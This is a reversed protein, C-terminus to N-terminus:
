KLRSIFSINSRWMMPILVNRSSEISNIISNASYPVNFCTISLLALPSGEKSILLHLTWHHLSIASPIFYRWESVDELWEDLDWLMWCISICPSLFGQPLPLNYSIFRLNTLNTVKSQGKHTFWYRQRCNGVYIGRERDYLLGKTTEFIDVFYRRYWCSGCQGQNYVQTVTRFEFSLFHWFFRHSFRTQWIKYAFWPFIWPLYTLGKRTETM